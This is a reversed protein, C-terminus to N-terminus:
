EEEVLSGKITESNLAFAGKVAIKEGEALGSLVEIWQDSSQGAEVKRREFQRDGVAVFVSLESGIKVVAGAPVAIRSAATAARLM